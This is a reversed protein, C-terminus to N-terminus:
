CAYMFVHICACVHMCACICVHCADSVLFPTFMVAHHSISMKRTKITNDNLIPDSADETLPLYEMDSGASSSSESTAASRKSLFYVGACYNLLSHDTESSVAVHM